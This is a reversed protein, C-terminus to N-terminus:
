SIPSSRRTAPSLSDCAPQAALTHIPRTGNRWNAYSHRRRHSRSAHRSHRSAASRWGPARTGSHARVGRDAAPSRPRSSSSRSRAADAVARVLWSNLSTGSAAAAAEARAKLNEPLRLSIRAVGGGDPDEDAPEEHPEAEPTRVVVVEPNRGRVRIDVLSDELAATVEDAMASLADIWVMIVEADALMSATGVIDADCQWFQRYRGGQPRDARFVPEIHYRKFPFSLEHRHTAVFRALPVTLDFRLGLDALAAPDEAQALDDATLGRRLVAFALKENDGGLGSHLREAEEMVPTEVEDFGHARYTSRIVGLVRERRAKEGPLFDRMGRPPTVPSAM